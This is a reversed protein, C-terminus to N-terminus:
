WMGTAGTELRNEETDPLDPMFDLKTKPEIARVSVTFETPQANESVTEPIIFALVRVTDGDPYAPQLWRDRHATRLAVGRDPHGRQRRRM